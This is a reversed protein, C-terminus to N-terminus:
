DRKYESLLSKYVTILGKINKKWFEEPWSTSAMEMLAVAEYSDEGVGAEAVYLNVDIPLLLANALLKKLRKIRERCVNAYACINGGHVHTMMKKLASDACRQVNVRLCEKDWDILKGASKAYFCFPFVLLVVLIIIMQKFKRM